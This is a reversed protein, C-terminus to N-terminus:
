KVAVSVERGASLCKGPCVQGAANRGNGKGTMVICINAVINSQSLASTTPRLSQWTGGDTQVLVQGGVQLYRTNNALLVEPLGGAVDLTYYTEQGRFSQVVRNGIGDYTYISEHVGDTM